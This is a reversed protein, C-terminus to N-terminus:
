QLSKSNLVNKYITYYHEVITSLSFRNANLLGLGVFYDYEHFARIFGQRISDIDYPDVLVAANGAIDKMPPINSTVVVRGIANGEIIPMGFGEYLSPFSVVDCLEYEKKIQEDTLNYSNSYQINNEKLIEIQSENLKGIIRLNINMGKLAKATRELNKNSKTGIHLIVPTEKNIENPIFSYSSDIPNNVVYCNKFKLNVLKKTEKESKNSIFTLADANKLTNMWLLKKKIKKLVNKQQTYFGLDHVTCVTNEKKLFPLLYHEAGTIHIIDYHHESLHKKLAMINGILSLFSYNAHPLTIASVECYCKLGKEIIQFVKGISFGM